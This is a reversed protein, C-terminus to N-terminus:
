ADTAASEEPRAEEPETPGNSGTLKAWYLRWAVAIGAVGALVAQLIMSGTGPDLYAQAPPAWAIWPAALLTITCVRKM